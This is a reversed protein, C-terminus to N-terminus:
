WGHPDQWPWRRPKAPKRWHDELRDLAWHALGGLARKILHKM